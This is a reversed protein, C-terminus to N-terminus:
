SMNQKQDAIGLVYLTPSVINLFFSMFFRVVMFAYLNPIFPNCVGFVASISGSVIIVKKRGFRDALFSAILCGFFFGAMYVSAVYASM